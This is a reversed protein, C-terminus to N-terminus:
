NSIKITGFHFYVTGHLPQDSPLYENEQSQPGENEPKTFKTGIASIGNLISINGQPFAPVVGGKAFKGPQPTFLHLFLDNTAAVIALPLEKTQIQVAYFNSYYGKFEPYDWSEGTVTNNYTKSYVGFEAGKLRNKWVHYPGNAVLTAGTVLNEPYDFTIGAYKAKGVPQFQYELKLWGGPLLTWRAFAAPSKDYSIEVVENGDNHLLRAERFNLTDGVFIPGNGFPMRKQGISIESLLGTKKSVQITTEGSSLVLFDGKEGSTIKEKTEQVIRNKFQEPQSINWSWSNILRGHPDTASLSLVDSELWGAPLDLKIKGIGGAPINPSSVKIPQKKTSFQEFIGAFKVLEASFKCEQLNSYLFRNTVPITGDFMGDIKFSELHVPSWIERITYYSGEKERYPGLIGDPANNGHTDISDNLDKRVIGEDAFVWLFGGAALSKSSMLNWYDDLGSGLGGDYL